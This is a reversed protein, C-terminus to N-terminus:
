QNLFNNVIDKFEDPQEVIVLHGADKILEFEADKIGDAVERGLEPPNIGDYEAGIVLTRCTVKDYDNSNDFNALSADEAAKEEESLEQSEDGKLLEEVNLEGNIAKEYSQPALSAKLIVGMMEEQTVQTIDMDAEKLLRAVSSTKGHPKTCLLILNDIDDCKVEATRLAIYSGMSYGLINVNELNLEKIIEHIDYAHDDITYKKPRTSEGHGRTDITIVRYDDKFMDRIPYMTTKNGTLGHILLLSNEGHETDDICIEIDNINLFKKM